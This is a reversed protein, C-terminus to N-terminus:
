SEDTPEGTLLKYLQRRVRVWRKRITEYELNMAEATEEFTLGYFYRLEVLQVDEAALQSLADDLDIISNPDAGLAKGVDNYDLATGPQGKGRKGARFRRAEDVVIHRMIRAAALLFHQRDEFNLQSKVVKLYFESLLATAQLIHGAPELAMRYQAQERLQDALLTVVEDLIQKRKSRDATALEQLLVTVQGTM